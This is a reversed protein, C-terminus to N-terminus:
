VVNEITAAAWFHMRVQFYIFLRCISHYPAFERNIGNYQDTAAMTRFKTNSELQVHSQCRARGRMPGCGQRHQLRHVPPLVTRALRTWLRKENGLQPVAALTSRPALLDMRLRLGVSGPSQLVGFRDAPPFKTGNTPPTANPAEWKIPIWNMDGFISGHQLRRLLTELRVKTDSGRM